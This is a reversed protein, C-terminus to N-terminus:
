LKWILGGLFSQQIYQNTTQEVQKTDYLYNGYLTMHKGINWFLSLGTRFLTPDISNYVYLANYDNYNQINGITVTAEAWVNKLIRAGAYQALIPRRKNKEILGSLYTTFYLNSKGPLTVGALLGVQKFDGLDYRFFSGNLGLTFRNLRTTLSAFALNGPYKYSDLSTNLHHYALSFSTHSTVSWNLLAFYDPQKILIDDVTQVYNSASQYISVRYGTQSYIGGRYYVPNSRNSSNNSKYNYEMDVSAIPNFAHIGLKEKLEDSLKDAHFRAYAVNGTNLGCYYLYERTDSDFEDFALAKEYYKQSTYYNEKAFYAYGMRQYLRKFEINQDIAQKGTKILKDWDGTLFCQYTISDASQFTLPDQAKLTTSVLLLLAIILKRM